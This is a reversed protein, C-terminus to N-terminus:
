QASVTRKQGNRNREKRLVREYHKKAQKYGFGGVHRYFDMDAKAKELETLERVM